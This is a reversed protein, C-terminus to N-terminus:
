EGNLVKGLRRMTGMITDADRVLNNAAMHNGASRYEVAFGGLKKALETHREIYGRLETEMKRLRTLDDRDLDEQTPPEERFLRYNVSTDSYLGDMGDFNWIYCGGDRNDHHFTKYTATGRRTEIFRTTDANFVEMEILDGVKIEDFVVPTQVVCGM